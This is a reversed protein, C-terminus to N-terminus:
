RLYGIARLDHETLERLIDGHGNYIFAREIVVPGGEFSFHSKVALTDGDGLTMAEDPGFHLHIPDAALIFADKM